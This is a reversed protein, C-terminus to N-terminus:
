RSGVRRRRSFMGSVGAGVTVLGTLWTGPEPVGSIAGTGTITNTFTGFDSNGFGTTVAFYWVGATLPVGNFGAKGITSAFDDNGVIVNTFPQTPDFSDHYLFLYNDWNSPNTGTSLFDYASSTDVSFTFISFPTATGVGSLPPTPPNSQVPRNWTPAGVTTGNYSLVAGNSSQVGAMTWLSFVAVAALLVRRQVFGNWLKM